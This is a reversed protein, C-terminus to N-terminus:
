ANFCPTMQRTARAENIKAKHRCTYIIHLLRYQTFSICPGAAAMPDCCCTSPKPLTSVFLYEDCLHESLWSLCCNPQHCHQLRPQPKHLKNQAIHPPETKNRKPSSILPPPPHQQKTINDSLNTRNQTSKTIFQTQKNRGECSFGVRGDHKTTVMTTTIM